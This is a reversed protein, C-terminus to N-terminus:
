RKRRQFYDKRYDEAREIELRSTKRTKKQFGQTLVVVSGDFFCLVRFIDGGYQIRCEWIEKAM